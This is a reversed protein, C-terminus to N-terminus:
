GLKGGALLVGLRAFQAVSLGLTYGEPSAGGTFVVPGWITDTGQGFAADWALQGRPNWSMGNLKGEDNLWMSLGTQDLPICEFYGQVLEHLKEGLLGDPGEVVVEQPEGEVPVFVIRRANV